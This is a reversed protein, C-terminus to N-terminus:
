AESVGFRLNKGGVCGRSDGLTSYSRALQHLNGPDITQHTNCKNAAVM